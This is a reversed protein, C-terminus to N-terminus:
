RSEVIAISPQTQKILVLGDRINDDQACVKMDDAKDLAILPSTHVRIRQARVRGKLARHIVRRRARM